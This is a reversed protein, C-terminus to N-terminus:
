EGPGNVVGKTYRLLVDAVPYCHERSAASDDVAVPASSASTSPVPESSSTCPVLVPELQQSM